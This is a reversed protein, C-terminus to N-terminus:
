LPFKKGCHVHNFKETPMSKSKATMAAINALSNLINLALKGCSLQQIRGMGFLGLAGLRRFLM